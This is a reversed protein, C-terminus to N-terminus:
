ASIPRRQQHIRLLQMAKCMSWTDDIPLNYGTSPDFNKFDDAYVCDAAISPYKKQLEALEKAWEAWKADSVINSNLNYYITSHVLVQRRRRNILEAIEENSIASVGKESVEIVINGANVPDGDYRIPLIMAIGVSNQMVLPRLSNEDHFVSVEDGDDILSYASDLLPIRFYIGNYKMLFKNTYFESKKLKYGKTKALAIVEAFNIKKRKETSTLLDLLM